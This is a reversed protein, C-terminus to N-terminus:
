ASQERLQEMLMRVMDKLEEVESKTEKERVTRIHNAHASDVARMRIAESQSNLLEGHTHAVKPLMKTFRTEYEEVWEQQRAKLRDDWDPHKRWARLTRDTIGIQKQIQDWSNGDCRLDIARLQKNTLPKHTGRAPSM